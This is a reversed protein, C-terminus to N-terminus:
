SVGMLEQYLSKAYSDTMGAIFDNVLVLRLYVKEGFDAGEAQRHYHRVYNPSIIQIVKKQAASMEEDTEYRLAAPVLKDMLGGIITDAAIESRVISPIQFINEFAISKLLRILFHCDTGDFIEGQFSGCLIEEQHSAFAESAARILMSQVTVVWNQVAYSEPDYEGNSVARDYLDGLRKFAYTSGRKRIDSVDDIGTVTEVYPSRSLLTVLKSYSLVGKKFGDEIDATSYAIDDAAELLYVLPHRMAGAGTATTIKEFLERDAQFYGMKKFGTKASSVPYKIITNLVGMTLNMGNDDVLHHLKAVVRLSQANGEFGFLDRLQLDTLLEKVGRGSVSLGDINKWYWDRIVMEGFHGFPPNGIDHILGACLLIDSMDRAQQSSILGQECLLNGATQGLSKAFSSVELSHTLRTRVFDNKNDLAFVQTKDQLRRFSASGIIRHYDKEFETRLDSRGKKKEHERVREPCLLKDYSMKAMLM